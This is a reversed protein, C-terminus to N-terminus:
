VATWDTGDAIFAGLFGIDAYCILVDYGRWDMQGEPSGRLTRLARHHGIGVSHLLYEFHQLILAEGESLDHTAGVERAGLDNGEQGAEDVEADDLPFVGVLLEEETSM